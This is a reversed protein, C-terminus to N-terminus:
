IVAADELGYVEDSAFQSPHMVRDVNVIDYIVAECARTTLVHAVHGFLV